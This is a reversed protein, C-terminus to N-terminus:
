ECNVIRDDDTMLAETDTDREPTLTRDYSRLVARMHLACPEMQKGLKGTKGLSDKSERRRDKKKKSSSMLLTNHSGPLVDGRM